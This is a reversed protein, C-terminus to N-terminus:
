EEVEFGAARFAATLVDRAEHENLFPAGANQAADVVENTIRVRAQRRDILLQILERCMPCTVQLDASSSVVASGVPAVDDSM